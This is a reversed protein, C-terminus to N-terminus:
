RDDVKVDQKSSNTSVHIPLLYCTNLLGNTFSAGLTNDNSYVPVTNLKNKGDWPDKKKLYYKFETTHYYSTIILM